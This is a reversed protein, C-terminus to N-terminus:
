IDAGLRRAFDGRSVDSGTATRVEELRARLELLYSSVDNGFAHLGLQEVACGSDWFACKSKTCLEAVGLNMQLHCLNRNM